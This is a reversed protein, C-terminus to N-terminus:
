RYSLFIAYRESHCLPCGCPFAEGEHIGLPVLFYRDDTRVYYVDHCFCCEVRAFKNDKM